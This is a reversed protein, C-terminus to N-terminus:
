LIFCFNVQNYSYRVCKVSNYVICIGDKVTYLRKSSELTPSNKLWAARRGKPLEM